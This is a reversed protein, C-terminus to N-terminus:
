HREFKMVGRAVHVRLRRNLKGPTRLAIALKRRQCGNAQAHAPVRLVSNACGYVNPVDEAANPDAICRGDVVFLYEYRGPALFLVRLWKGRRVRVMGDVKWNNFTGTISVSQAQEDDFEIRVPRVPM